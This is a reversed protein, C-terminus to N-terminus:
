LWSSTDGNLQINKQSANDVDGRTVKDGILGDSVMAPAPFTRIEAVNAGDESKISWLITRVGSEMGCRSSSGWQSPDSVILCDCFSVIIVIM